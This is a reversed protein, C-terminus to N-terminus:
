RPERLPLGCNIVWKNCTVPAPGGKYLFNILYTIDQINVICSGNPDGSCIRYPTPAPGGKYLFNIIHTIDQINIIGSGNADGPKCDCVFPCVTIIYEVETFIPGGLWPRSLSQFETPCNLRSFQAPYTQNSAIPYAPLGIVGGPSPSQLTLQYGDHYYTGHPGSVLALDNHVQAPHMPMPPDGELLDFFPDSIYVSPPVTAGTDVGAITVYHGGVRSWGGPVDPDPQWFGLLMIVDQSRKVESRIFEWTPKAYKSAILTDDLGLSALYSNIGAHMANIDTGLSGTGMLAALNNVVPPVNVADHDDVMLAGATILRFDDSIAPPPPSAPNILYQYKSDFWFL